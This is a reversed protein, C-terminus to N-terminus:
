KFGSHSFSKISFTTSVTSLAASQHQSCQFSITVITITTTATASRQVPTPPTSSAPAQQPASDPATIPPTEPPSVLIAFPPLKRSPKSSPANEPASAPAMHPAANAPNPWNPATQPLDMFHMDGKPLAIRPVAATVVAILIAIPLKSVRANASRANPEPVIYSKFLLSCELVAYLINWVPTVASATNVPPIVPVMFHKIAPVSIAMSVPKAPISLM